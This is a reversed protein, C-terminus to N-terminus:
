RPYCVERAAVDARIAAHVLRRICESAGLSGVTLQRWPGPTPDDARQIQQHIVVYEDAPDRQFVTTQARGFPGQYSWSFGRGFRADQVALPHGSAHVYDSLSTADLWRARRPALSTAFEHTAGSPGAVRFGRRGSKKMLYPWIPRAVAHQPVEAAPVLHGLSCPIASLPLREVPLDTILAYTTAM